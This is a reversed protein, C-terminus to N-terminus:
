PLLSCVFNDINCDRTNHILADEQSWNLRNYRYGARFSAEDLDDELAMSTSLIVNVKCASTFTEALLNFCVRQDEVEWERDNDPFYLTLATLKPALPSLLKCLTQPRLECAYLQLYLGSLMPLKQICTDVIDRLLSRTPSNIDVDLQTLRFNSPHKLMEVWVSFLPEVYGDFASESANDDSDDSADEWESYMETVAQRILGVHELNPLQKLLDLLIGTDRASTLMVKLRLSRLQKITQIIGVASKLDRLRTDFFQGGFHLVELAEHGQLPELANVAIPLGPLRGTYTRLSRLASMEACSKLLVAQWEAYDHLDTTDDTCKSIWTVYELMQLQALGAALGVWPPSSEVTLCRICSFVHLRPYSYLDNVQDFMDSCYLLLHQLSHPPSGELMNALIDFNLSSGACIVSRAKLLLSKSELDALSVTEHCLEARANGHRLKIHSNKKEFKFPWESPYAGLVCTMFRRIPSMDSLQMWKKCVPRVTCFVAGDDLFGSALGFLDPNIVLRNMSM